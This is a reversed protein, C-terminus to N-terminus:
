IRGEMGKTDYDDDNVEPFKVIGKPEADNYFFNKSYKSTYKHAELLRGRKPQVNEM